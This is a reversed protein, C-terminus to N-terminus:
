FHSRLIKKKNKRKELYFERLGGNNNFIIFHEEGILISFNDFPFVDNSTKGELKKLIKKVQNLKNHFIVNKIPEDIILDSNIGDVKKYNDKSYIIRLFDLLRSSTYESKIISIGVKINRYYYYTPNIRKIYTGTDSSKIIKNINEVWKNLDEDEWTYQFQNKCQIEIIDGIKNAGYFLTMFFKNFLEFSADNSLKFISNNPQTPFTYSYAIENDSTFENVINVMSFNYNEFSRTFLSAFIPMLEHLDTRDGDIDWSSTKTFLYFFYTNEDIEELVFSFFPRKQILIKKDRETILYGFKKTFQLKELIKDKM